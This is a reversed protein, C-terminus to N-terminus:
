GTCVCLLTCAVCPVPYPIVNDNDGDDDHHPLRRRRRTSVHQHQRHVHALRSGTRGHRIRHLASQLVQPPSSSSSASPTLPTHTHTFRIQSHFISIKLVTYKHQTQVPTTMKSFHFCCCHRKSDDQPNISPPPTVHTMYSNVM